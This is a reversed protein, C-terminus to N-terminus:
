PKATFSVVPAIVYGYGGLAEMDARTVPQSWGMGHLEAPRGNIWLQVAKVDKLETLSYVFSAKMNMAAATGQVNAAEPSLDVTAVGTTRDFNVSKVQTGAPVSSFLKLNEPANVIQEAVLRVQSTSFPVQVEVPVLTDAEKLGDQYYLKLLMTQAAGGSRDIRSRGTVLDNTPAPPTAPTPQAPPTTVPPTTGGTTGGTNTSGTSTGPPVPAPATVPTTAPKEAPKYTKVAYGVGLVIALGLLVM